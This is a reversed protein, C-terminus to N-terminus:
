VGDQTEDAEPTVTPEISPGRYEPHARDMAGAVHLPFRHRTRVDWTLSQHCLQAARAALRQPDWEQAPSPSRPPPSATGTRADFSSRLHGGM